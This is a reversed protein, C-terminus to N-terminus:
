EIPNMKNMNRNKQLPNQLLASETQNRSKKTQM